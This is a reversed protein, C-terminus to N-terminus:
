ASWAYDAASLGHSNSEDCAVHQTVFFNMVTPARGIAAWTMASNGFNDKYNMDAGADYLAVVLDKHGALAAHMMPTMEQADAANVNAGAAILHKLTKLEGAKSANILLTQGSLGVGQDLDQNTDINAADSLQRDDARLGFIASDSQSFRSFTNGSYHSDDVTQAMASMSFTLLILIIYKFYKM